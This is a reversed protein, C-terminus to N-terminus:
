QPSLNFILSVTELCSIIDEPLYITSSVVHMASPLTALQFHGMYFFERSTTEKQRPCPSHIPHVYSLTGYLFFNQM